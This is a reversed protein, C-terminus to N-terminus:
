APLAVAGPATFDKGLQEISALLSRGTLPSTTYLLRYARIPTPGLMIGVSRLRYLTKVLIDSAAFSLTDPRAEYSFTLSYGNYSIVGPYWDGGALCSWTTTVTNGKTDITSAQGWRLTHGTAPQLTPSFVTRTGDRGWVTWTNAGSNYLIKLYSEDKTAHSGGATCSPSTIGGCPILQQGDLLYVDTGDWRPTGLGANVREITSIGSLNWGVGLFGNRGESSYSVSLKPELGHFPPVEIPSSRSLSGYFPSVQESAKEIAESELGFMLVTLAVALIRWSHVSPRTFALTM